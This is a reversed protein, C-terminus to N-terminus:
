RSTMCRKSCLAHTCGNGFLMRATAQLLFARSCADCMNCPAAQAMRVEARAVFGSMVRIFIRDVWRGKTRALVLRFVCAPPAVLAHALSLVCGRLFRQLQLPTIHLQMYDPAVPLPHGLRQARIRLVVHLLRCPLLVQGLENVSVRM